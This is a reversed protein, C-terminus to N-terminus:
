LLPWVMRHHQQKKRRKKETAMVAVMLAVESRLKKLAEKV